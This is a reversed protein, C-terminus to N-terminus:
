KYTIYDCFILSNFFDYLSIDLINCIKVLSSFSVHATKGTALLNVTTRSLKCKDALESKTIQKQFLLERLRLAIAQTYKM